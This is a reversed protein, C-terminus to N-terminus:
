GLLRRSTGAASPVEKSHVSSGNGEGSNHAGAEEDGEKGQEYSAGAVQATEEAEKSDRCAVLIGSTETETTILFWTTPTGPHTWLQFWPPFSVYKYSYIIIGAATCAFAVFYIWDVQGHTFMGWSYMKQCNLYQEYILKAALFDSCMTSYMPCVKEHYAFIRILVAWMDSTLLSLNLM